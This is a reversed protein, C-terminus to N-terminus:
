GRPDSAEAVVGAHDRKEVVIYGTRRDVVSEAGLIEHGSALVFRRSHERVEEYEAITVAVTRSCDRLACECRFLVHQTEREDELGREIAENVERRVAENRAIRDQTTEEM